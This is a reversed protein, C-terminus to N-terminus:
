PEGETGDPVELGEALARLQEPSMHALVDAPIASTSVHGSHRVQLAGGDPGTTRVETRKGYVQPFLREGLWEATHVATPLHDARLGKLLVSGVEQHLEDSALEVRRRFEAYPRKNEAGKQLWKHLTREGLGVLRAASERGIGARILKCIAETMEPTCKTPRGVPKAAPAETM